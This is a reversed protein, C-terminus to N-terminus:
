PGIREAEAIAKREAEARKAEAAARAAAREREQARRNPAVAPPRRYTLPRCNTACMNYDANNFRVAGSYAQCGCSTPPLGESKTRHSCRPKRLKQWPLEPMSTPWHRVTPTACWM